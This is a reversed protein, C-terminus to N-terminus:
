YFLVLTGLIIGRAPFDISNMGKRGESAISGPPFHWTYDAEILDAKSLVGATTSLGRPLTTNQDCPSSTANMGAEMLCCLLHADITDPLITVQQTSNVDSVNFAVVLFSAVTLNAATLTSQSNESPVQVFIDVEKQLNEVIGHLPTEICNNDTIQIIKRIKYIECLILFVM